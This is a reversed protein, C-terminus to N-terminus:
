HYPDAADRLGDGVFNFALVTIVVFLAPIFYWPYNVLARVNQSNQLLVGWSIAPARLGLGLFSLATEGLIMGPIALTINVLIYSMCNPILHRSIIYLDGAGFSRASVVFDEDRLALIQGRIVRATGVWGTLSLIVTIAFYVQIISWKPPLAASMAMWFPIKPISLMFEIIRQIIDDLTGGAYGSIGGVLLGLVLSLFVGILGISLSLRAGYLTRSFLDRGLDDTGFLFINGDESGFLHLDTNFLGLLKYSRGRVFLQLPYKTEKDIEYVKALTVPDRNSKIGYVFPRQLGDEGIMHITQPSINSMGKFRNNPDYPTLFGSLMAALYMFTLIILGFIALRHHKFDRWILQWQSLPKKITENSM